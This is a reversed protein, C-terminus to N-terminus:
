FATRGSEREGERILVGRERWEILFQLGLFIPPEMDIPLGKLLSINLTLFWPFPTDM